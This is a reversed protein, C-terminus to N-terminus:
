GTKSVPEFRAFPRDRRVTREAGELLRFLQDPFIPAETIVIGFPALADSVASATVAAVPITGAEGAGKIGLPNLPSPTELHHIEVRPVETAYPILFDVFSGNRLQGLEDYALKEYLAGGVGQAVGGMVQGEVVKPNIM